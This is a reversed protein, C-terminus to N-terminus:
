DLDRHRDVEPGDEASPGEAVKRRIDVQTDVDLVTEIREVFDDLDDRGLFAVQHEAAFNLVLDGLVDREFVVVRDRHNREEDLLIRDVDDAPELAVFEDGM